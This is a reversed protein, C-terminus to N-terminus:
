RFARRRSVVFGYCFISYMTVILIRLVTKLYLADYLQYNNFGIIFLLPLISYFILLGLSIWYALNHKEGNGFLRIAKDKFYLAIIYVLIWSCISTAHYLNITFPNLFFSNIIFALVTLGALVKIKKKDKENDILSWYVYYFYGFFIITYINYIIDNANLYKPNSFFAFGEKFRIFYGLLENFFTYAILLPFYRLATDFYKKYFLVSFILVIFYVPINYHEKLFEVLEQTM